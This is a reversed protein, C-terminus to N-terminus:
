EVNQPLWDKPIAGKIFGREILWDQIESFDNIFDTQSQPFDVQALGDMKLRNLNLRDKRAKLVPILVTFNDKRLTFSGRKPCTLNIVDDKWSHLLINEVYAPDDHNTDEQPIETINEIVVIPKPDVLLTSLSHMFGVADGKRLKSCDLWKVIRGSQQHLVPPVYLDIEDIVLQEDVIGGPLKFQENNDIFLIEVKPGLLIDLGWFVNKILPNVEIPKEDLDDDFLSM